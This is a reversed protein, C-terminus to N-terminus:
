GSISARRIVPCERCAEHQDDCSDCSANVRKLVGVYGAVEHRADFLPLGAADVAVIQGDRHVFRYRMSFRRQQKVAAVWEDFVTKRDDPHLAAVWGNGLIQTQDLGVVEALELSAYTCAGEKDSHWFPLGSVDLIGFTTYKLLDLKGEIRAIIDFLSDGGNPKLTSVIEKIAAQQALRADVRRKHWPKFLKSYGALLASAAAGILAVAEEIRSLEM